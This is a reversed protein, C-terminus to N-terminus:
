RNSVSQLVSHLGLDSEWWRSEEVKEWLPAPFLSNPSCDAARLAEDRSCRWPWERGRSWTPGEWQIGDKGLQNCRPTGCAAAKGARRGWQLSCGEPKMGQQVTATYVEGGHAETPSCPFKERHNSSKKGRLVSRPAEWLQQQVATKGEKFRSEWLVSLM